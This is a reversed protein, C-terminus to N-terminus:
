KSDIMQKCLTLINWTNSRLLLLKVDTMEKYLNLHIYMHNTLSYIKATENKSLNPSIQRWVLITITELCNITEITAM